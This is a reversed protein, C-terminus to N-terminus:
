NRQFRNGLFLAAALGASIYFLLWNGFLLAVFLVVGCFFISARVIESSKQDAKETAAPEVLKAQKEAQRVSEPLILEEFRKRAIRKGIVFGIIGPIAAAGILHGILLEPPCNEPPGHLLVGIGGGILFGLLPAMSTARCPTDSTTAPSSTSM